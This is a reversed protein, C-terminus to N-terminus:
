MVAGHEVVEGVATSVAGSDILGRELEELNVTDTHGAGGARWRYEGVIVHDLGVVRPSDLDWRGDSWAVVDKTVLGNSEMLGLTDAAGLWVWLADIELDRATSRVRWRTDEASGEVL